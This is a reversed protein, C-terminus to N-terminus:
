RVWWMFPFLKWILFGILCIEQLAVTGPRFTRKKAPLGSTKPDEARGSEKKEKRQKPRERKGRESVKWWRGMKTDGIYKKNNIYEIVRVMKSNM